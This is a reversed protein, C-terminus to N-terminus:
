PRVIEAEELEKAASDMRDAEARLISTADADVMNAAIRLREALARIEAAKAMAEHAKM